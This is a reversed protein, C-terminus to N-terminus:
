KLLGATKLTNAWSGWRTKYPERSAPLLKRKFDSTSPNRNNRLAFDRLFDLLQTDTYKPITRMGVKRYELNALKISREWTGFVRIVTRSFTTKRRIPTHGLRDAEKRLRHLLQEPCTGNKNQRERPNAKLGARQKEVLARPSKKGRRLSAFRKLNKYQAIGQAVFKSRLKESILFSNQSLGVENKYWDAKVSHERHLHHGLEKFWEGCLHCQVKDSEGDFLLVGQYGHGGVYPMFPEKYNYLTVYGSPADPYELEKKTM